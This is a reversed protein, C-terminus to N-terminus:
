GVHDSSCDGLPLHRRQLEGHFLDHIRRNPRLEVLDDHHSIRFYFLYKRRQLANHRGDLRRIAALEALLKVIGLAVWPIRQGVLFHFLLKLSEGPRHHCLDPPAVGDVRDPCQIPLRTHVPQHLQEAGIALPLPRCMPCVITSFVECVCMTSPGFRGSRAPSKRDIRGSWTIVCSLVEATIFFNLAMPALRTCSGLCSTKVASWSMWFVSSDFRAFYRLM